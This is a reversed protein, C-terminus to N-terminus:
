PAGTVITRTETVILSVPQDHEERPVEDVLQAEFALGITTARGHRALEALTRDYYGGGYGLRYGAADFALGPVLMVDVEALDILEAEPHPERLGMRNEVLSEISTLAVHELVRRKVRPAVVRRGRKLLSRILAETAVESGIGVFCHVVRASELAPLAVLRAEIAQTAVDRVEPALADRRASMEARFAAKQGAADVPELHHPSETASM